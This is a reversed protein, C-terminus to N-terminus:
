FKSLMWFINVSHYNFGTYARQPYKVALQPLTKVGVTLKDDLKGVWEKKTKDSGIFGKLHRQRHTHEIQTNWIVLYPNPKNFTNKADFLGAGFGMNEDYRSNTEDEAAGRNVNQDSATHLTGLGPMGDDGVNGQTKFM